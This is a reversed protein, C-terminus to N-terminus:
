DQPDFSVFKRFSRKVISTMKQRANANIAFVLLPNVLSSGFCFYFARSVDKRNGCRIQTAWEDALFMTIPWWFILFVLALSFSKVSVQIDDNRGSTLAEKLILGYSIIIVITPIIFVTAGTGHIWALNYIPLSCTQVNSVIGIGCSDTETMWPTLLPIAQILGLVWCPVIIWRSNSANLHNQYFTQHNCLLWREVSLVMHTYISTSLTLFVLAFMIQCGGKGMPHPLHFHGGLDNCTKNEIHLTKTHLEKNEPMHIERFILPILVFGMLLDALGLSFYIRNLRQPFKHMFLISVQGWLGGTKLVYCLGFNTIIIALAGLAVFVLTPTTLPQRKDHSDDICWAASETTNTVANASETILTTTPTPTTTFNVPTEEAM